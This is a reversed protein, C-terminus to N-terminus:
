ARSDGRRIAVVGITIFLLVIGWPGAVWLFWPYSTGGGSLFLVLWIALCLTNACGWVLWPILLAPDSLMGGSGGREPRRAAPRPLDALDREPLDETLRSLEALTRAHYATELRGNFEDSDLRGHAFHDQLLKAVRDRDADSARVEPSFESVTM